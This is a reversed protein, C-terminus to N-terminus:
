STTLLRWFFFIIGPVFLFILLLVQAIVYGPTPYMKNWDM